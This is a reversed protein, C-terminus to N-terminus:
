RLLVQEGEEFNLYVWMRAKEKDLERESLGNTLFETAKPLLRCIRIATAKSSNDVPPLISQDLPHFAMHSRGDYSVPLDIPTVRSYHAVMVDITKGGGNIVENFVELGGFTFFDLYEGDKLLYSTLDAPTIGVLTSMSVLRHHPVEYRLLDLLMHYLTSLKSITEENYRALILAEIQQSPTQVADPVPVFSALRYRYEEFFQILALIYPYANNAFGAESLAPLFRLNGPIHELSHSSVYEWWKIPPVIEQAMSCRRKIGVLTELNWSAPPFLGRYLDTATRCMVNAMIRRVIANQYTIVFQNFPKHSDCFALLQELNFYGLIWVLIEPIPNM